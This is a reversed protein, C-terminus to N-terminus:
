QDRIRQVAVVQVADPHQGLERSAVLSGDFDIRGVGKDVVSWKFFVDPLLVGSADRAQARFQFAGGPAVTATPPDITVTALPGRITLNAAVEQTVVGQSTKVTVVARIAGPYIGPTKGAKVEVFPTVEGLEPSLSWKVDFDSLPRGYGDLGLIILRTSQGPSLVVQEPFISLRDLVEPVVGTPATDLVAVTAQATIEKAPGGGSSPLSMVAEVAAPYVGPRKSAHLRGDASLTGVAPDLIRWRVQPRDLRRGDRRDLAVATFNFFQGPRLSIAQPVVAFTIPSVLQTSEVVLIDLYATIGRSESGPQLSLSVQVARPYSGPTQGATFRGKPSVSGARHDVVEWVPQAGPLLTGRTDTVLATLQITQGPEVEAIKPFLQISAPSNRTGQRRIAINASAQASGLGVGPPPSAVVVVSGPFSGETFAARFIGGPTIVGAAPDIVQWHYAVNSLELGFQDFAVATFITTEGPLLVINSPIAAIRALRPADRQAIVVSAFATARHVAREDLAPENSRAPGADRTGSWLVVGLFALLLVAAVSVVLPKGPAWTLWRGFPNPNNRLM